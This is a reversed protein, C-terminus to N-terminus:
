FLCFENKFFIKKKQYLTDKKLLESRTPSHIIFVPCKEDFILSFVNSFQATIHGFDLEKSNLNDKRPIWKKPWLHKSRFKGELCNPKLNILENEKKNCM